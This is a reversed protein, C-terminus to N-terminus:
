PVYSSVVYIAVTLSDYSQVIVTSVIQMYIFYDPEAFYVKQRVHLRYYCQVKVAQRHQFVHMMDM